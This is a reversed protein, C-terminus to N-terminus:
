SSSSRQDSDRLTKKGRLSGIRRYHESGYKQKTVAGGKAGGQKGIDKYHKSGYLERTKLGGLRGAEARTLKAKSDPDREKSNKSDSGKHGSGETPVSQIATENEAKLAQPSGQRGGRRAGTTM